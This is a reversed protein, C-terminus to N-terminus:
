RRSWYQWPGCVDYALEECKDRLAQGEAQIPPDPSTQRCTFRACGGADLEGEKADAGYSGRRGLRGAPHLLPARGAPDVASSRRALSASAGEPKWQDMRLRSHSRAAKRLSEKLGTM